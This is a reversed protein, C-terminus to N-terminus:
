FIMRIVEQVVKDKPSPIGLPRGKGNAKPIMIRRARTFTFSQDRMKRIINGIATTSFGDLTLDDSEKTMNGPAGKIKEYAVIYLDEMYLLRYLDTNVWNPNANLEKVKQLRDLGKYDM